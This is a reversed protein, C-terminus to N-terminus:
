LRQTTLSMGNCPVVALLKSLMLADGSFELDVEKEGMEIGGPLAAAILIHIAEYSLVNRLIAVQCSHSVLFQFPDHIFEIM